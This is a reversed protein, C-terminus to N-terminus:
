VDVHEHSSPCPALMPMTKSGRRGEPYACFWHLVCGDACVVLRESPQDPTLLSVGCHSCQPVELDIELEDDMACREPSATAM